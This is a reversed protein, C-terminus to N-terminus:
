RLELNVLNRLFERPPLEPVAMIQVTVGTSLCTKSSPHVSLTTSEGGIITIFNYSIYQNNLYRVLDVSSNAVLAM